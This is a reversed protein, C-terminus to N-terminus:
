PGCGVSSRGNAQSADSGHREGMETLCGNGELSGGGGLSPNGWGPFRTRRSRWACQAPGRGWAEGPRRQGAPRRRRGAWPGASRPPGDTPPRRGGPYASTPRAGLGECGRPNSVRLRRLAPGGPRRHGVTGPWPTQGAAAGGAGWGPRRRPKPPPSRGSGATREGVSVAAAQWRAPQLGVGWVQRAVPQPPGAGNGGWPKESASANTRESQEFSHVDSISM